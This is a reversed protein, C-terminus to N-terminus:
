NLEIHKSLAHKLNAANARDHSDYWVVAGKFLLLIQPSEHRVNVEQAIQKSVHRNTVVNLLSFDVSEQLEAIIGQVSQIAFFSISCTPSHKFVVQPKENSAHIVEQIEDAHTLPTWHASENSPGGFLRNFM